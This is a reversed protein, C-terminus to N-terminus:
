TSKPKLFPFRATVGPPIKTLAMQFYLDAQQMAIAYFHDIEPQKEEYLRPWVFLGLLVLYILSTGSFCKGILAVLYLVGAVQATLILNTCYYTDRILDITLNILDLVTDVHQVLTSRSIHFTSSKFKTVFPNGVKKGDIWRGKLVVYNVFGFCVLLLTLFLYSILTVVSYEGYTILLFFFNFIGFLLGSKVPDRWHFIKSVDNYFPSSKAITIFTKPPEQVLTPSSTTATSTTTKTPSSSEPSEVLTETTQSTEETEMKHLSCIQHLPLNL